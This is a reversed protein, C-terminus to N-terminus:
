DNKGNSFVAAALSVDENDVLLADNMLMDVPRAEIASLVDPPM